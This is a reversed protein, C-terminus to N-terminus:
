NISLPCHNIDFQLPIGLFNGVVTVYIDSSNIMILPIARLVL